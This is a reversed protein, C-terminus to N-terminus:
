KKRITLSNEEGEKIIYNVIHALVKDCTESSDAVCSYTLKYDGENYANYEEKNPVFDVRNM